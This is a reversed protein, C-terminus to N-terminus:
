FGGGGLAFLVKVAQRVGWFAVFVMVWFKSDWNQLYKNVPKLLIMAM